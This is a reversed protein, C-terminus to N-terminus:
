MLKIGSVWESWWVAMSRERINYCSIGDSLAKQDEINAVQLDTRSLIWITRRGCRLSISYRKGLTSTTPTRPLLSLDHLMADVTRMAFDQERDRARAHDRIM